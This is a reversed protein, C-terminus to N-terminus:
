DEETYGSEKLKEWLMEAAEISSDVLNGLPQGFCEMDKFWAIRDEILYAALLQKSTERIFESKKM